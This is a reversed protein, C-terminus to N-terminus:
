ENIKLPNRKLIVNTIVLITFLSAILTTIGGLQTILWSYDGNVVIWSPMSVFAFFGAVSFPTVFFMIISKWGKLYDQYRHAISASLFIGGINGGCWWWPFNSFIMLPQNGYYTYLGGLRLTIEEGIIEVSFLILVTLLIKKTTNKKDFRKFFLFQLGGGWGLAGIVIFWIINRGLVNFAVDNTSPYYCGGLVNTMAESIAMGVGSLVIMVPLLSNTKRAEKIAFILGIIGPLAYVISLIVVTNMNQVTDIPPLRLGNITDTLTM